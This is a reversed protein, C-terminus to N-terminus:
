SFHIHYSQVAPSDMLGLLGWIIGAFLYRGLALGLFFPLLHRYGIQGGFRLIAGKVMWVLLFPAWLHYGYSTAMAFGLPHFPFGLFRQRLDNLAFTLGAGLITQLILEDKPQTATRVMQAVNSYQQRMLNMQFQGGLQDAGYRYCYSLYLWGGLVLGLLAGGIYAATVHRQPFRARAALSMGEAGYACIEPYFGRSLGGLSALIPLSAGGAGGLTASGFLNYLLTQQQGFPFLYLMPTGTEARMRAYVVAVAILLLLHLGGLWLPLGAAQLWLLMLAPGIALISWAARPSLPENQAEETPRGRVAARFSETLAPAARLLLLVFLCLFSGIGLEQYDYAGSVIPEGLALRLAHSFRLAIYSFWVTLLVDMPMLYAIGIIEPRYSVWLPSLATWPKEVLGAALDFGNGWAPFSPVLAHLMNVGDFAAAFAFGIWFLSNRWYSPTNETGVLQVPLQVIPYALREDEMWSRRLLALLAYLTVLLAMLFVAWGVLPGLWVEWPVQGDRAGEFFRRIPAGAAPAYWTPLAGILPENGPKDQLYQATTIQAFLFTMSATSPVTAAVAIFLYLRLVYKQWDDPVRRRRLLAATGILLIVAALAPIPPVAGGIQIARFRYEVTTVWLVALVGLGVALLVLAARTWERRALTTTTGHAEKEPSHVIVM